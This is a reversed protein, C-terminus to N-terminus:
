LKHVIWKDSRLHMLCISVNSKSLNNRKRRRYKKEVDLVGGDQMPYKYDSHVYVTLQEALKTLMQFIYIQRGGPYYVVDM